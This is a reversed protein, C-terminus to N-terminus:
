PNSTISYEISIVKIFLVKEKENEVKRKIKKEEKKDWYENMCLVTEKEDYIQLDYLKM